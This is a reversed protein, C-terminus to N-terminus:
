RPPIHDIPDSAIRKFDGFWLLNEVKTPCPTKHQRPEHCFPAPVTVVLEDKASYSLLQVPEIHPKAPISLGEQVHSPSLNCAVAMLMAPVNHWRPGSSLPVQTSAADPTAIPWWRKDMM